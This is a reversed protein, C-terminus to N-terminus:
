APEDELIPGEENMRQRLSRSFHFSSLFYEGDVHKIPHNGVRSSLTEDFAKNSMKLPNFWDSVLLFSWDGFFSPISASYSHVEAFISKLTRKILAHSEYELESLKMAQVTMLAGPALRTKLLQFFQKTYLARAPGEIHSDLVDIIVVDYKNANNEVYARGDSIILNVRPDNFAGRHWSQLHEKSLKIISEDFDVVTVTEVTRHKLAERVSAGEGAGIILIRRPNPHLVLPPQVLMEHYLQEDVEASQLDGDLVLIRGYKPSDAILVRQQETAGIHLLKEFGGDNEVCVAEYSDQNKEHRLFIRSDVSAPELYDRMERDFVETQTDQGCTFLDVFCAKHEPYTHVSAHSEKLLFVATMGGNNFSHIEDSIITAGSAKIAERMVDLLTANTLREFNCDNYSAFFHRGWFAHSNARDQSGSEDMNSVRVGAPPKSLSM